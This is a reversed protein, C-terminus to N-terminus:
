GAKRLVDQFRHAADKHYDIFTRPDMIDFVDPDDYYFDLVQDIAEQVEEDATNPFTYLTRFLLAGACLKGNQLAFALWDVREYDTRTHCFFPNDKWLSEFINEPYNYSGLFGPLATSRFPCETCQTKCHTKM